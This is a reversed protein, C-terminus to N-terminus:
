KQKKKSKKIEKEINQIPLTINVYNFEDIAKALTKGNEKFDSDRFKEQMDKILAKALEIDKSVKRVDGKKLFYDFDKM